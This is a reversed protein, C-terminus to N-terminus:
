VMELSAMEVSAPITERQTTVNQLSTAPTLLMWVSMSTQLLMKNIVKLSSSTYVYKGSCSGLYGAGEYGSHCICSYNGYTNNCIANQDCNDTHNGCEDFDANYLVFICQIYITPLLFTALIRVLASGAMTDWHSGLTVSASLAVLPTTASIIM